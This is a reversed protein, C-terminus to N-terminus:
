YYYLQSSADTSKNVIVRLLNSSRLYRQCDQVESAKTQGVAVVLLICDLYPLVAIVDSGTLLPPLDVLLYHGPRTKKVDQLTGQMAASGLLESSRRTSRTPLVTLESEATRVSITADTLAIRGELVDLLGGNAPYVGIYSALKPKQMDADIMFVARDPQRAISLGLNLSTLSKGCEPTPSTIGLVKWGKADMAPLVQIRLMDYARAHPNSIDHSVVRHDSLHRPTLQIAQPDGATAVRPAFVTPEIQRVRVTDSRTRAPGGTGRAKEVAQRINEM